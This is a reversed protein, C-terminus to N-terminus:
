LCWGNLKHCEEESLREHEVLCWAKKGMICEDEDNLPLPPRVKTKDCWKVSKSACQEEAMDTHEVCWAKKLSKCDRSSGSEACWELVKTECDTNPSYHELCYAMKAAVCDDKDASVWVPMQSVLPLLFSYSRSLFNMM